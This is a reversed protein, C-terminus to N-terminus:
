HVLIQKLFRESQFQILTEINISTICKM